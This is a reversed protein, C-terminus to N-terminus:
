PWRGPFGARGENEYGAHAMDTTKFAHGGDRNFFGILEM